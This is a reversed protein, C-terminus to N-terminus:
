IKSLQYETRLVSQQVSVPQLSPIDKPASTIQCNNTQNKQKNKTQKKKNKKQKKTKKNKKEIRDM